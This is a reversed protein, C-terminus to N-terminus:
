FESKEGTFEMFISGDPHRLPTKTYPDLAVRYRARVMPFPEPGSHTSYHNVMWEYRQRRTMRKPGQFVLADSVSPATRVQGSFPGKYLRVKNM